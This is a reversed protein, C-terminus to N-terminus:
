VLYSPPRNGAVRVPKGEQKAFWFLGPASTGPAHVRKQVAVYPMCFPVSCLKKRELLIRPRASALRQHMNATVRRYEAWTNSSTSLSSKPELTSNCTLTRSGEQAGISICTELYKM